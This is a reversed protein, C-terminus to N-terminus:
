LHLKEIVANNELKISNLTQLIAEFTQKSSMLTINSMSICYKLNRPNQRNNRSFTCAPTQSILFLSVLCLSVNYENLQRGPFNASKRLKVSSNRSHNAHIKEFIALPSKSSLRSFKGSSLKQVFAIDHFENQNFLTILKNNM